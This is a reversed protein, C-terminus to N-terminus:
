ADENLYNDVEDSLLEAVQEAVSNFTEEVMEQYCPVVIAVDVRLSEYNGLNKTVGANVKVTAPTTEFIHVLREETIDEKGYASVMISKVSEVATAGSKKKRVPM